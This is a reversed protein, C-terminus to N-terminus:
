LTSEEFTLVIQSLSLHLTCVENFEFIEMIKSQSVIVMNMKAYKLSLREGLQSPM